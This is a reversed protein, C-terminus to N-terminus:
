YKCYRPKATITKSPDGPPGQGARNVAIVRFQYDMGEILQGCSGKCEPGETECAKEWINRNPVNIHCILYTIKSYKLYYTNFNNLYM